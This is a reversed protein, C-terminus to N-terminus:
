EWWLTEGLVLLLVCAPFVGLPLWLLAWRERRIRAALALVFAALATLLGVIAAEAALLAVWTDELGSWGLV